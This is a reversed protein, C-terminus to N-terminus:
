AGVVSKSLSNVRVELLLMQCYHRVWYDEEEWGSDAVGAKRGVVAEYIGVLNVQEEPLVTLADVFRMGGEGVDPDADEETAWLEKARLSVDKWADWLLGEHEALNYGKSEMVKRHRRLFLFM